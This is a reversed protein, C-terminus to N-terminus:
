LMELAATHLNNFQYKVKNGSLETSYESFLVKKCNILFIFTSSKDCQRTVEMLLKSIIIADAFKLPKKLPKLALAGAYSESHSHELNLKLISHQRM